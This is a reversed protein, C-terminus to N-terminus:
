VFAYSNLLSGKKLSSRQSQRSLSQNRIRLMDLLLSKTNFQDDEQDYHPASSLRSDIFFSVRSKHELTSQGVQKENHVSISSRKSRRSFYPLEQIKRPAKRRTENRFSTYNQHDSDAQVLSSNMNTSLVRNSILKSGQHIKPM